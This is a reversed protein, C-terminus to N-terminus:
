PPLDWFGYYTHVSACMYIYTYMCIQKCAHTYTYAHMYIYVYIYTFVDTYVYVICINVYIYICIYIYLCMCTYMHPGRPRFGSYLLTDPGEPGHAQRGHDQCIHHTSATMVNTDPAGSGQPEQVM